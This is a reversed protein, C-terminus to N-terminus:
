FDVSIVFKCFSENLQKEGDFTEKEKCFYVKSAAKEDPSTWPIGTEQM